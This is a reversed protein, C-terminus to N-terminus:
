CSRGHDATPRLLLPVAHGSAARDARSRASTRRWTSPAACRCRWSRTPRISRAKPRSCAPAPSTSTRWSTPRDTATPSRTAVRRHGHHHRRHLHSTGPGGGSWVEKPKAAKAIAFAEERGYEWSGIADQDYSHIIRAIPLGFEDKDSSLEVRNEALPMQEGFLGIRTLGRAARKMFDALPQGFLDPRAGALGVNPKMAAGTRLFISGFGKKPRTRTTPEYSMFQNAATGMHNQVDEDFLAWVNAASHCMLYKGVLENRNALGKPHKDTASNLMIRPIEAAYAALVVVGAPQVHQERKADYYEVGTVRDGSPNTLVRTVYSFPRVEAGRKRADRLHSVLPSATRASRAASM